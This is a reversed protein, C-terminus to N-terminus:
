PSFTDWRLRKRRSEKNLMELAMSLTFGVFPLPDRFSFIEESHKILFSKFFELKKILNDKSRLFWLIDGLIYRMYIPARYNLRRQLKEGIAMKYLLYPFDVGALYCIKITRTIRANIEMLKPKNDRPDVIFDCDGIGVWGIEKLIKAGIELIDRRNVTRNFTSSGGKPPYYRIKEYVCWAILNLDRDHMIETKFQGGGPPIFEQVHCEGYKEKVKHYLHILEDPSTPYVMGRAGYSMNPKLVAPYKIKKAIVEIDEEDPFYTKPIPVGIRQAIKLTNKKNRCKIYVDFDNIPLITYKEIEKKYKTVVYTNHEGFVFTVKFKEKKLINIIDEIFRSEDKLPSTYIIRKKPFVSFFGPCIRKYSGVYVTIGKNSLSHIFPLCPNEEAGIIFVKEKCM